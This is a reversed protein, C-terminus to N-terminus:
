FPFNKLSNTLHACRTQTRAWCLYKRSKAGASPAVYTGYLTALFAAAQTSGVSPDYQNSAGGLPTYFM